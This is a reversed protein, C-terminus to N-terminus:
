NFNLRAFEGHLLKARRDYEKAAREECTFYGIQTTKGNAMIRSLWKGRNKAWCVGKYKSSGDRHPKSNWLNQINKADRLNYRRNNLGDGDRHDTFIDEPTNNILRHMLMTRRKGGSNVNTRAYGDSDYYWLHRLVLAEDEVDVVAVKGQTLQIKLAQGKM